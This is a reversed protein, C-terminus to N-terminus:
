LRRNANCVIGHRNYKSRGRVGGEGGSGDDAEPEINQIASESTCATYNLYDAIAGTQEFRKWYDNNKM